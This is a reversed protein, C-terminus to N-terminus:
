SAGFALAKLDNQRVLDAADLRLEVARRLLEVVGADGGDDRLM